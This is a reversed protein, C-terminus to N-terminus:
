TDNKPIEKKYIVPKPDGNAKEAEEDPNKRSATIYFPNNRFRNM